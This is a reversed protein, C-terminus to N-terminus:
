ICGDWDTLYIQGRSLINNALTFDGHALVYNSSRFYKKCDQYFKYIAEFAIKGRSDGIDKQFNKVTRLFYEYRQKWFDRVQHRVIPLLKDTLTQLRYINDIILPIYKRKSGEVSLEYFDGVTHGEIYERLYWPFDLNTSGKIYKATLPKRQSINERSLLKTIKIERILNLPFNRQLSVKLFIKKNSKDICPAAYFAKRNTIFKELPILPELQLDKILKAIRNRVRPLLQYAKM